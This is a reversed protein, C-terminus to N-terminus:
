SSGDGVKARATRSIAFRVFDASIRSSTRSPYRIFNPPLQSDKHISGAREAPLLARPFPKGMADTVPLSAYRFEAWCTKTVPDKQHPEAAIAAAWAVIKFNIRISAIECM